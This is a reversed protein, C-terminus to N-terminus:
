DFYMLELHEDGKAKGKAAFPLSLYDRLLGITPFM